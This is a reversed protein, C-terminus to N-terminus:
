VGCRSIDIALTLSHAQSSKIPTLRYSAQGDRRRRTRWVKPAYIAKSNAKWPVDEGKKEAEILEEYHEYESIAFPETERKLRARRENNISHM